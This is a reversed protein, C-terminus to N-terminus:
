GASRKTKVQINVPNAEIALDKGWSHNSRNILDIVEESSEEVVGRFTSWSYIDTCGEEGDGGDEIVAISAPHIYISKGDIKKTLKIFRVEM